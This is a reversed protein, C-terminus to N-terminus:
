ICIHMAIHVAFFQANYDDTHLIKTVQLLVYNLLNLLQRQRHVIVREFVIVTLRNPLGEEKAM